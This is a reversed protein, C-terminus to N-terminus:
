LISTTIVEWMSISSSGFKTWMVVDVIYISDRSLTKNTVDHVFVIVDYDKNWFVNAKLFGQTAFSASM